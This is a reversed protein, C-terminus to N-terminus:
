GVVEKFVRKFNGGLIKRIDEESYGRELLKETIVPLKTCDEVRKPLVSVGDFDSGLGVHEPGIFKAIYDIHDVLVDVSPAVAGIDAGLLDMSAYWYDDSEEGYHKKLSDLEASHQGRVEAARQEFTSDIYGPFFNIFVVGGNKKIARLQDDKLNRFHPCLDYVSSHSAIIPKTTVELIDWFTQEGAHSVDVIVGIKNCRRIVERGFDTLGKLELSDSEVEDKASTAWENSNNWTVGLYCMGRSKLQELKELSNEIAHGGEVGIVAALKGEQELQSLDAYCDAIGMKEPIAAVVRELANIMKNAQSFARDPLFESPNVWVAFVQADMGGALLRPIDSHGSTTWETIDEGRLVRLLVDNHTDAVYSNFHLFDASQSYITSLVVIGYLITKM